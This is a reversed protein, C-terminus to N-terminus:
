KKLIQDFQNSWVFIHWIKSYVNDFKNSEIFKILNNAAKRLSYWLLEIASAWTMM